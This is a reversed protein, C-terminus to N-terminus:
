VARLRFMRPMRGSRELYGAYGPYIENFKGWLSKFEQETVAVGTVDLKEPGVEIVARPNALLNNTWAPHHQQGFNTGVVVFDDGDRVYLLPSTRPLGSKAGTCTLLLAPMGYVRATFWGNGRRAIWRDIIPGIRRYLLAFLPSKGAVRLFSTVVGRRLTSEYAAIRELATGGSPQAVADV